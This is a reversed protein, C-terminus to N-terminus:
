SQYYSIILQSFQLLINRQISFLFSLSESRSKKNILSGLICWLYFSKTDTYFIFLWKKKSFVFHQSAWFINGIRPFRFCGVPRIWEAASMRLTSIDCERSPFSPRFLNFPYWPQLAWLHGLNSFAKQKSAYKCLLSLMQQGQRPWHRVPVPKLYLGWAQFRELNTWAPNFIRLYKQSLCQHRYLSYKTM